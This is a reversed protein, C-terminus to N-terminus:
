PQHVCQDASTVPVTPNNVCVASSPSARFSSGDWLFPTIQELPGSLGVWLFQNAGQPVVREVSACAPGGDPPALGHQVALLGGVLLCGFGQYTPLYPQNTSAFCLTVPQGAVEGLAQGNGEGLYGQTGLAAGCPSTFSVSTLAPSFASAPTVTVAAHSGQMPTVWVGKGPLLEGRTLPEYGNLPDYTYAIAAAEIFAPAIGSPDGLLAWQPPILGFSAPATSGTGLVVITPATFYVWAGTNAPLGAAPLRYAYSQDQPQYIYLPGAIGSLDTGPPFAVLNWGAAYTVTLGGAQAAAPAASRAASAVMALLVVLVLRRM